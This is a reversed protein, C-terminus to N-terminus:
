VYHSGIHGFETVEGTEVVGALEHFEQPQDV